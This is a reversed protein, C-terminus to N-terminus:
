STQMYFNYCLTKQIPKQLIWSSHSLLAYRYRTCMSRHLLQQQQIETHFFTAACQNPLAQALGVSAHTCQARAHTHIYTHRDTQRHAVM